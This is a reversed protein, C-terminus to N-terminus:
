IRTPVLTTGCQHCKHHTGGKGDSSASILANCGKRTCRIQRVDKQGKIVQLQKQKRDKTGTIVKNKTPM